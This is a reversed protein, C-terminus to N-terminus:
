EASTEPNPPTTSQPGTNRGNLEGATEQVIADVDEIADVGLLGAMRRTRSRLSAPLDDAKSIAAFLAGAERRKGQELYAMAVMEGASGFYPNGPVALPKLRAIIDAPQRADFTAAVERVIALDRLTDPTDDSAAVQAFLKAAEQANGREQAIGAQMMLAIAQGGELGDRGIPELAAVGGDLNGAEIQDLARVLEESQSELKAEHQSNWFLYGAFLALGIVIAAIILKGYRAAFGSMEDKRVAEDVERMLVDEEALARDRRKDAPATPTNPTLAM